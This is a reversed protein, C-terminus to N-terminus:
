TPCERMFYDACIHQFLYEPDAPTTSPMAAQSPVNSNCITCKSRTEAIDKSIGPWFISTQARATMGSPPTSPTSVHRGCNHPSSSASVGASSATSWHYTTSLPSTTRSEQRSTTDPMLHDTRLSMPYTGYTPTPRPPSRSTKGPSLPTRSQPAYRQPSATMTTPALTPPYIASEVPRPPNSQYAHPPRPTTTM